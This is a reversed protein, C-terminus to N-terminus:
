FPDRSSIFLLLVAMGSPEAPSAPPVGVVPAWPPIRLACPRCLCTCGFSRALSRALSRCPFCVWPPLFHTLLHTLIDWAPDFFSFSSVLESALIFLSLSPGCPRLPCHALRMGSPLPPTVWSPCGLNLGRSGCPLFPFSSCSITQSGCRRDTQRDRERECV